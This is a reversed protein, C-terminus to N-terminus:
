RCGSLWRRPESRVILGVDGIWVPSAGHAGVPGVIALVQHEERTTRVRLEGLLDRLFEVHLDGRLGRTVESVALDEDAEVLGDATAIREHQLGM